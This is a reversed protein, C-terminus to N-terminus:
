SGSTQCRASEGVLQEELVGDFEMRAQVHLEALQKKKTAIHAEIVYKALGPAVDYLRHGGSGSPIGFQFNRQRGFADLLTPATKDPEFVGERKLEDLLKTATEIERFCHWIDACTEPRLM